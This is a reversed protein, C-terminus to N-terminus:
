QRSFYRFTGVLICKERRFTKKGMWSTLLQESFRYSCSKSLLVQSELNDNEGDLHMRDMFDLTPTSSPLSDYQCSNPHEPCSDCFYSCSKSLM